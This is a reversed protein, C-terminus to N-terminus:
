STTAKSLMDNLHLLLNGMDGAGRHGADVVAEESAVAEGGELSFSERPTAEVTSDASAKRSWTGVPSPAPAPSAWCGARPNSRTPVEDPRRPQM